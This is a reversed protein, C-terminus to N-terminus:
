GYLLNTGRNIMIAVGITLLFIVPEIWSTTTLMLILFVLLVVYVMIRNIEASTLEIATVSDVATGSLACGEGAVERVKDIAAEQKDTDVTLVLLADGDKYYEELTKKEIFEIPQYINAADDLWTVENVGDIAQIQKKVALVEPITKDPLM